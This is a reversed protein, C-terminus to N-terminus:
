LAQEYATRLTAATVPRPNFQATWQRAAEEALRDLDADEVAHRRLGGGYGARDRHSVLRDVLLATARAPSEDLHCLGAAAALERYWEAVRADEGNYRVVHPLMTGVAEGHSITERHATLPNALSHAAGLMSNEIALGAIAAAILMDGRHDLDNPRELVASFARDARAFAEKAYMASIPNRKRSVYSEVAHGLTDLGTAAAVATPMTITLAPDLLAIRPACSPDGCAMKQHDDTREILTFSQVETGTGATTPIAILPLLPAKAKGVGWYDEMRGGNTLLFNAGKATDIASGGGLGIFLDFPSSRAERACADVHDANPNKHAQEFCLVGVGADNLIAEVRAAHGAAVLGPDTVLFVRKAGLELTLTGIQDVAGVGYVM